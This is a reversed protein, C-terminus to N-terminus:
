IDHTDHRRLMAHETLDFLRKVRGDRDDREARGLAVAHV